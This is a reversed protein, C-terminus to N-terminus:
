SVTELVAECDRVANLCAALSAGSVSDGPSDEAPVLARTGTGTGMGTGTGAGGLGLWDDRALVLSGSCPRVAMFMLAM